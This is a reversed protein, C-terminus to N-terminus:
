LEPEYKDAVPHNAIESRGPFTKVSDVADPVNVETGPPLDFRKVVLDDADMFAGAVTETGHISNESTASDPITVTKM